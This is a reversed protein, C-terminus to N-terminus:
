DIRTAQGNEGDLIQTKYGNIEFVNLLYAFNRGIHFVGDCHVHEFVIKKPRLTRFPFTALIRADYGETDTMLTDIATIDYRQCLANFSFAAVKIESVKEAFKPDHRIAHSPNLSGLQDGYGKIENASPDPAFFSVQDADAEAMAAQLVQISERGVYRRALDRFLWPVPEVLLVPGAAAAQEVLAQTKRGNHAGILVLAYEM